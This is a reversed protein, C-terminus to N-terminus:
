KTGWIERHLALLEPYNKISAMVANWEAIINYGPLRKLLNGHDLGTSTAAERYSAGDDLFAKAADLKAQHEARRKSATGDQQAQKWKAQQEAHGAKCKECDCTRNRYANAGHEIPKPKEEVPGAGRRRMSNSMMAAAKLGVIKSQNM